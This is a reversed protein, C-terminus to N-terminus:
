STEERVTRCYAAYISRTQASRRIPQGDLAVIEVLGLSSMTSFVGDAERVEGPQLRSERVSLGLEAALDMIVARTIGPLLGANRPPTRLTTGEVCFVNGSTTECLEGKTNLLLAEHAGNREAEARAMIQVLKNSTKWQALPNTDSSRLSSTFLTWQPPAPPLPEAPHLSMVLLPQDAGRPSYGRRGVGRSLTLRLVAECADNLRLLEALAETLQRSDFPLQIDLGAAGRALRELHQDWRFPRSNCIRVTEFLGDGYQFSRDFVSVTAGPEPVFQGNLFVIM